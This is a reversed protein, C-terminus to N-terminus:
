RHFSNGTRKGAGRKAPSVLPLVATSTDHIVVSREVVKSVRETDDLFIVVAGNMGVVKGVSLGAEEVAPVLKITQRRTLREFETAPTEAVPM